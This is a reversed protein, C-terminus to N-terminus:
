RERVRVSITERCIFEHGRWLEFPRGALQAFQRALTTADADCVARVQIYSNIRGDEDLLYCRYSLM